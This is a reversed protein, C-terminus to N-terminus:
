WVFFSRVQLCAAKRHSERILYLMGIRLAMSSHSALQNGKRKLWKKMLPPSSYWYFPHQFVIRDHALLLAQERGVDIQWDPYREYQSNLTMQSNEKLEQAWRRNVTSQAIDPHFLNVLIKM